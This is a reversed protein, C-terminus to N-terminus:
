SKLREEIAAVRKFLDPLRERLVQLRQEFMYPRSPTGRVSLGPPTDDNVGSQAGVKVGKGLNVHGTIGVQGALIVYDELSSSGSIGTQACVLCHKGITVNHAIQVLNDIKSGEGVVTSGSM